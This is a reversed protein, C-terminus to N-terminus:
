FLNEWAHKYFALQSHYERLKEYDEIVKARDEKYDVIIWKGNKKYIYDLPFESCIESIEKVFTYM